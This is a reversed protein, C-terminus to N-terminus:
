HDKGWLTCGCTGPILLVSIQFYVHMGMNGAASDVFSLVHFCQLHGDVSSHTFIYYIHACLLINSLVFILSIRGNVVIYILRSFVLHLLIRYSM